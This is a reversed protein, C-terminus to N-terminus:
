KAARAKRKPLRAVRSPGSADAAEVYRSLAAGLDFQTDRDQDLL